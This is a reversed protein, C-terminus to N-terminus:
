DPQLPALCHRLHTSVPELRKPEWSQPLLFLHSLPPKILTTDVLFLCIYEDPLEPLKKGRPKATYFWEEDFSGESQVWINHQRRITRMM